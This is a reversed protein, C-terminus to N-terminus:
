LHRDDPRTLMWRNVWSADLSKGSQCDHMQLLPLINVSDEGAKSYINKGGRWM